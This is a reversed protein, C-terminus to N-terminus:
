KEKFSLPNLFIRGGRTRSLELSTDLKTVTLGSISGGDIASKLGTLIEDATATSDSTYTYATGNVTVSYVQSDGVSKLLVTGVKNAVFSPASQTTVTKLKNTVITTDQVTLIDYYRLHAELHSQSVWFPTSSVWYIHTM